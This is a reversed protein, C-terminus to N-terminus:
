FSEPADASEAVWCIAISVFSANNLVEPLDRKYAAETEQSLDSSTLV